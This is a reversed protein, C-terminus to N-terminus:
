EKSIVSFSNWTKSWNRAGRVKKYYWQLELIKNRM